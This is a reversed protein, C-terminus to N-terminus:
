PERASTRTTQGALVGELKPRELAIVKPIPEGDLVIRSFATLFILNLRNSESGTLSPQQGPVANAADMQRFAVDSFIKLAPPIGGTSPLSVVPLFGLDNLILAQVRPSTLYSILARSAASTPGKPLGLGALIRLYGRGRPGVPAPFAVFEHPKSRFVDILRASHDWAVWVHGDLLAQDMRSFIVSSPTVYQWLSRLYQWMEVAPSGSFADSLGAVYSPTLYGELFRYMLGQVGAPFGLKRQGTAAYMARAWEELQAYTLNDLSAGAPLYKLAERNAVMLYTAQMWPLFYEHDDHLKTMARLGTEFNRDSLEQWLSDTAALLGENALRVFDPSLGGIVVQPDGREALQVAQGFTVQQGDIPVFNVTGPFDELIVKVLTSREQVPTLQNSYFQVPSPFVTRSVSTLLIVFCVGAVAGLRSRQGRGKM